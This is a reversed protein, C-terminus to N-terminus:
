TEGDSVNNVATVSAGAVVEIGVKYIDDVVGPYDSINQGLVINVFNVEGAAKNGILEVRVEAAQEGSERMDSEDSEGGGGRAVGL